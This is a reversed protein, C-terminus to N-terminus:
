TTPRLIDTPNHVVRYFQQKDFQEHLLASYLALTAISVKKKNLDKTVNVIGQLWPPHTM